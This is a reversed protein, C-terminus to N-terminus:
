VIFSNLFTCLMDMTSTYNAKFIWFHWKILLTVQNSYSVQKPLICNAIGSNGKENRIVSLWVIIRTKDVRMVRMVCVIVKRKCIILTKTLYNKKQSQSINRVGILKYKNLHRQQDILLFTFFETSKDIFQQHRNSRPMHGLFLTQCPVTYDLSVNFSPFWISSPFGGIRSRVYLIRLPNIYEVM